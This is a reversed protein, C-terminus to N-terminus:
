PVFYFEKDSYFFEDINSLLAVYNYEAINFWQMKYVEQETLWKLLPIFPNDVNDVDLFFVVKLWDDTSLKRIDYIAWDRHNRLIILVDGALTKYIDELSESSMYEMNNRYVVFKHEGVDLLVNFWALYFLKRLLRCVNQVRRYNQTDDIHYM